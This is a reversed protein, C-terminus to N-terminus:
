ANGTMNGTMFQRASLFRSQFKAGQERLANVNNVAGIRDSLGTELIKNFELESNYTDLKPMNYKARVEEETPAIFEGVGAVTRVRGEEKAQIYENYLALNKNYAQKEIADAGPALVPKETVLAQSELLRTGSLFMEVQNAIEMKRDAEKQRTDLLHQGFRVADSATMNLGLANFYKQLEAEMEIPSPNVLNYRRDQWYETGVGMVADLSNIELTKDMIGQVVNSKSAGFGLNNWDSVESNYNSVVNDYADPNLANMLVSNNGEEMLLAIFQLEPNGPSIFGDREILGEYTERDYFIMLDQLEKIETNSLSYLLEEADGLKFVAKVINGNADKISDASEEGTKIFSGDEVATYGPTNGYYYPIPQGTIPDDDAVPIFDGVSLGSQESDGVFYNVLPKLNDPFAFTSNIGQLGTFDYNEIEQADESGFAIQTALSVDFQLNHIIGKLDNIEVLRGQYQKNSKVFGLSPADLMSQEFSINGGNLGFDVGKDMLKQITLNEGQGEGIYTGVVVVNIIDEIVDRVTKGILEDPNEQYWNVLENFTLEREDRVESIYVGM